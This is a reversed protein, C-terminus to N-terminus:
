INKCFLKKGIDYFDMGDCGKWLLLGSSAIANLRDGGCGLPRVPIPPWYCGQLM